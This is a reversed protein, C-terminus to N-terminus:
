EVTCGKEWQEEAVKVAGQKRARDDLIQDLYEDGMGDDVNVANVSPAPANKPMDNVLSPHELLKRNLPFWGRDSVAKM